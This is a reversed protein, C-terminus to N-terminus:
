RRAGQEDDCMERLLADIEDLQMRERRVNEVEDVEDKLSRALVDVYKAYARISTELWGLAAMSPAASRARDLHVRTAGSPAEEVILLRSAQM